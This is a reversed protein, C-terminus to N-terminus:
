GKKSTTDPRDDDWGSEMLMAAVGPRDPKGPGKRPLSRVVRALRPRAHPPLVERARDLLTTVLGATCVEPCEIAVAVRQGWEPDPVGVVVLDCGAPVFEALAREVQSPWVKLGGSILVDDARGDVVLNQAEDLHGIDDTQFWRMGSYDVFPSSERRTLYGAAVVDGALHIRGAELHLHVGDLPRGDYVCGGATESMGYTLVLPVGAERARELMVPPVSSGGVLIGDLTRAADVADPDALVRALQTPVLSSYRREGSMSRVGTAFAQATFSGPPLVAPVYGARLSRLLVQLGAIHHAPLALLWRGPGGLRTHTADASAALATPTLVARKAVGTSGSTGVAIGGGDPLVSRDIQEPDPMVEAAAGGTKAADATDRSYPLLLPGIGAAADRLRDLVAPDATPDAPISLPDCSM